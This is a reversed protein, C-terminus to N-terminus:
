IYDLINAEGLSPNGKKKLGSTVGAIAKEHTKSASQQHINISRYIDFVIHIPAKTKTILHITTM